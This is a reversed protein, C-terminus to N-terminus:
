INFRAGRERTAATIMAICRPSIKGRDGSFPLVIYVVCSFHRRHKLTQKYGFVVQIDFRAGGECTAPTINANYPDSRTSRDGDFM